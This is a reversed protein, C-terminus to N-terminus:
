NEPSGSFVVSAPLATTDATVSFSQDKDVLLEFLIVRSPSVVFYVGGPLKETGSFSGKSSADLMASDALAKVKGYYYGLYVKSNSFPKLTIQIRHGDQSWAKLLFLCAAFSLLIKNM